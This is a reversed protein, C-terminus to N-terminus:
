MEMVTWTPRTCRAPAISVSWRHHARHLKRAGDNEWWTIDDAELASGLIDVDGDSDLDTAYVSSAGDFNADVMHQTFSEAGNNEWWLIYGNFATAYASGLVDLDGDGDM